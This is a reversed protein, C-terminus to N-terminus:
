LSVHPRPARTSCRLGRNKFGHMPLHCHRHNSVMESHSRVIHSVRVRDQDDRRFCRRYIQFFLFALFPLLLFWLVSMVRIEEAFFSPAPCYSLLDLHAGM